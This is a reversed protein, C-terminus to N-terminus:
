LEILFKVIFIIKVEYPSGRNVVIQTYTNTLIDNTERLLEVSPIPLYESKPVMWPPGAMAACDFKCKGGLFDPIYDEPIYSFTYFLKLM